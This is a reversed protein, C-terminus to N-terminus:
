DDFTSRITLIPCILAEAVEATVNPMYLHRLSHASYASGMAILDYNGSRAEDIIEHVINGHRIHCVVPLGTSRANEYVKRLHRGQPTDTEMVTKWHDHIEDAIRYHLTVPEVVYLLTLEAGALRALDFSYREVVVSYELGGLCVLIKRIQQRSERIYFLPSQIQAQIRRFSRGQVLRQWAPRGLPGAITLYLGSNAQRAIVDPGDGECLRVEYPLHLADLRSSAAHILKDIQTTDGGVEHIGLFVVRTKLLNALYISYDLAASTHEDGNTCSLIPLDTISM